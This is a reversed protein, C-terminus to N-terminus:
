GLAGYKQPWPYRTSSRFVLVSMSLKRHWKNVETYIDYLSFVLLNLNLRKRTKSIRTKNHLDSILARHLYILLFIINSFVCLQLILFWSLISGCSFRFDFFSSVGHTTPTVLTYAVWSLNHCLHFFSAALLASSLSQQCSRTPAVSTSQIGNHIRGQLPKCQGQSLADWFTVYDNCCCEKANQVYCIISFPKVGQIGRPHRTVMNINGNQLSLRSKYVFHLRVILNCM